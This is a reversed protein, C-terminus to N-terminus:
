GGRGRTARDILIALVDDHGPGTRGPSALNVAGVLKSDHLVTARSCTAFAKGLKHSVHIVGVGQAHM